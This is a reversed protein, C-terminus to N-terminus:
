RNIMDSYYKTMFDHYFKNDSIYKYVNATKDPSENNFEACLKDIERENDPSLKYEKIVGDKFKFIFIIDQAGVVENWFGPNLGSKVLYLYASLNAEPIKLKRDGDSDKDVIEISLAELDSDQVGSAGMLFSLYYNM